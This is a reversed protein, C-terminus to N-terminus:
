PEKLPERPWVKRVLDDDGLKLRFWALEVERDTYEPHRARIGSMALARAQENLRLMIATRATPGIRRLVEAQM